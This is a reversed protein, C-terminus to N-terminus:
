AAVVKAPMAEVQRGQKELREARGSQTKEGSAALGPSSVEFSKIDDYQVDMM